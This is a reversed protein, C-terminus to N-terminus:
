RIECQFDCYGRSLVCFYQDVCIDDWTLECCTSDLNSCVCGVNPDCNPDLPGDSDYPSHACVTAGTERDARAVHRCALGDATPFIHSAVNAAPENTDGVTVAGACSLVMKGEPCHVRAEVVGGPEVTTPGSQNRVTEKWYLPMFDETVFCFPGITRRPCNIGDPSMTANYGNLPGGFCLCKFADGEHPEGAVPSACIAIVRVNIERTPLCQIAGQCPLGDDDIHLEFNGSPDSSGHVLIHYTAGEQSCWSVWSHSADGCVDSDDNGTVCTLNECDACYVSLKTNYNADCVDAMMRNGTGMVTYWVGPHDVSTDCFPANSDVSASNTTGDTGSPVGVPIADQCLDNPPAEGALVSTSVGFLALLTLFAVKISNNQLRWGRSTSKKM